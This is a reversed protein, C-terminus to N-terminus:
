NAKIKFFERVPIAFAIHCCLIVFFNIGNQPYSMLISFWESKQAVGSVSTAHSVKWM